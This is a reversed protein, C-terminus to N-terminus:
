AVRVAQCSVSPYRFIGGDVIFVTCETFFTERESHSNVVAVDGVCQLYKNWVLQVSDRTYEDHLFTSCHSMFNRKMLSNLALLQTSTEDIDDDGNINDTARSAQLSAAFDQMNSRMRSQMLESFNSEATGEM